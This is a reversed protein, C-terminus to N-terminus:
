NMPSLHITVYDCLIRCVQAQKNNAHKVVISPKYKWVFGSEGFITVGGDVRGLKVLDELKGKGGCKTDNNANEYVKMHVFM